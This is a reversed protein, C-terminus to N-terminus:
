DLKSHWEQWYFHGCLPIAHSWERFSWERFTRLHVLAHHTCIVGLSFTFPALCCARLSNGV